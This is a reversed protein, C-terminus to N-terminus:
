DNLEDFINSLTVGENKYYDRPFMWNNNTAHWKFDEIRQKRGKINKKRITGGHESYHLDKDTMLFITAPKYDKSSAVIFRFNDITYGAPLQTLVPSHGEGVQLKNLAETYHAAQLYYEYNHLGITFERSSTKIDVPIIKKNIHDIIVMDLLAKCQVGEYSSFYIPVQHYGEWYVNYRFYKSTFSNSILSSKYNLVTKM